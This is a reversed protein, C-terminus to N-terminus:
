ELKRPKGTVVCKPRAKKFTAIGEITVASHHLKIRRLTKIKVLEALGKDTVETERINLSVLSPSKTLTLMGKDTVGTAEIQLTTLEPLASLKVLGPDSIRSHSLNLAHLRKFLGLRSAGKNDVPNGLLNLETLQRLRGLSNLSRSDIGNRSLDLSLLQEAKGISAVARSGLNCSDIHLLQLRPLKTANRVATVPLSNTKGIGIIHLERLQKLKSFDVLAARGELALSKLTEFKEMSSIAKQIAKGGGPFKENFHVNWHKDELQQAHAGEIENLRNMTLLIEAESAQQDIPIAPGEEVKQPEKTAPPEEQDNNSKESAATGSEESGTAQDRKEAADEQSKSLRKAADQSARDLKGLPVKVTSGDAKRLTVVDDVLKVFVAQIRHKADDSVWERAHVDAAAGVVAAVILFVAIQMNSNM